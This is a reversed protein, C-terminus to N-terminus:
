GTRIDIRKKSHRREIQTLVEIYDDLNIIKFKNLHKSAVKMWETSLSHKWSLVEVNWGLQVAKVACNIFSTDGRSKGKHGDGTVLVLTQPKLDVLAKYIALHLQEDVRQEDKGRREELDVLYGHRRYVDWVQESAPPSSGATFGRTVKRGSEAVSLLQQLRLKVHKPKIQQAHAICVTERAGIFVNSNDVVVVISDSVFNKETKPFNTDETGGSFSNSRSHSLQHKDLGANLPSDCITPATKSGQNDGSSLTRNRKRQHKRTHHKPSATIWGKGNNSEFSAKHDKTSVNEVNPSTSKASRGEEVLEASKKSAAVSIQEEKDDHLNNKVNVTTKSSKPQNRIIPISNTQKTNKNTLFIYPHDKRAPIQNTSLEFTIGDFSYSLYKLVMLGVLLVTTFFMSLLLILIYHEKMPNKQYNMMEGEEILEMDTLKQYRPFSFQSCDNPLMANCIRLQFKYERGHQLRKAVHVLDQGFYELDQNSYLEYVIVLDNHNLRAPLWKIKIENRSIVQAHPAFPRYDGLRPINSEAFLTKSLEDDRFASLFTVYYLIITCLARRRYQKTFYEKRRGFM